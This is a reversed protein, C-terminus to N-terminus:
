YCRWCIYEDFFLLILWCWLSWEFLVDSAFDRKKLSHYWKKKATVGGGKDINTVKKQWVRKGEKRLSACKSHRWAKTLVTRKWFCGNIQTNFFLERLLKQIIELLIDITSSKKHVSASRGTLKGFLQESCSNQLYSTM